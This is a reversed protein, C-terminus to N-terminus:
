PIVLERVECNALHPLSRHQGPSLGVFVTQLIQLTDGHSVLVIVHERFRTELDVILDKVRTAVSAVSYFLYFLFLFVYYFHVISLYCLRFLAQDLTRSM